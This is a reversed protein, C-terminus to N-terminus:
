LRNRGDVILDDEDLVIPHKLGNEAIDYALTQLEEDETMPFLAADPHVKYTKKSSGIQKM